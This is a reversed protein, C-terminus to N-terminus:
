KFLKQNCKANIQVVEPHKDLFSIVEHINIIKGPKYFKQYIKEVLTFDEPYDITLRYSRAYEPPAEVGPGIVFENKKNEWIYPVVHEREYLEIANRHAKKLADFSFVSVDLGRPFIVKDGFCNSIYDCKENLFRRICIDVVKPDILPCDSTIRVIVDVKFKKAAEYYRSLVDEESGRFYKLNNEKAFKELIDNERTDPIALIIENIKKANKLRNIVHWLMPKGEIDMLVKGPLRTSAMRAQIIAAIKSIRKRM